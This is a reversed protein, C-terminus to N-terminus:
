NASRLSIKRMLDSGVVLRAVLGILLGTWVFVMIDGAFQFIGVVLFRLQDTGFNLANGLAASGWLAVLLSTHLLYLKVKPGTASQLLIVGPIALLVLRYDFNLGAFFCAVFVTSVSTFFLSKNLNTFRFMSGLTLSNGTLKSWHFVFIGLALPVMTGFGISVLSSLELGLHSFYHPLVASGFQVYGTGPVRPLQSYDWAVYLSILAAFASGFVIQRRDSGFVFPAILFL